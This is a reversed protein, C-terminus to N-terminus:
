YTFSLKNLCKKVDENRMFLNWLLKSRYNEIMIIIPGQDIALYAEAVWFNYHPSFADYFGAPGLLKDKNKYFYHLSKMSEAPTYPISSIAATPSIVGIDDNGPKHAAYGLSGDTNRSYSATLGWVEQGYGRFGKPNAICYLNNIKSHNTNVLWYNVFED